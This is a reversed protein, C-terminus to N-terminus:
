QHEFANLICGPLAWIPRVLKGGWAGGLKKYLHNNEHSFDNELMFFCFFFQPAYSFAFEAINRFITVPPVRHCIDFFGHFNSFVHNESIGGM